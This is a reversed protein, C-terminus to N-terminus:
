FGHAMDNAIALRRGYSAVQSCRAVERSNDFKQVERDGDGKLFGVHASRGDPCEYRRMELTESRRQGDGQQLPNANTDHGLVERVMHFALNQVDTRSTLFAGVVKNLLFSVVASIALPVLNLLARNLTIEAACKRVEDVSNVERERKFVLVRQAIEDQKRFTLSNRTAAIIHSLVDEPHFACDIFGTSNMPEVDIMTLKCSLNTAQQVAGVVIDLHVASDYESVTSHFIDGNTLKWVVFSGLVIVKRRSVIFSILAGISKEYTVLVAGPTLSSSIEALSGLSESISTPVFFNCISLSSRVEGRTTRMELPLCVQNLVPNRYDYIATVPEQYLAFDGGSCADIREEFPIALFISGISIFLAVCRALLPVILLTSRVRLRPHSGDDVSFEYRGRWWSFLLLPDDSNSFVFARNYTSFRFLNNQTAAVTKNVISQLNAIIATTLLAIVISNLHESSFQLSSITTKPSFEIVESVSM